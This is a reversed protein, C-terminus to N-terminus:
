TKSPTVKWFFSHEDRGPEIFILRWTKAIGDLTRFPYGFEAWGKDPKNMLWWWSQHPDPPAFDPHQQRIVTEHGLIRQRLRDQSLSLNTLREAIVFADPRATQQIRNAIAQSGRHHQAATSM